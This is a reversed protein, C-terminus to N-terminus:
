LFEGGMCNRINLMLNKRFFIEYPTKLEATNVLCRNKLYAAACVVEPWFRNNVKAEALLCRSMDMISRNFREATGNLEHVYPPCANLIIGKERVFKYINNNMYEKGNDCRLKKVRKGTLNEVENIYGILCDYVQDKTKITYVRALKSYDDIFSLFYYREGNIGVTSHAGNLDTHVIELIEKAKSRNNQFPLNHMKNEICVKCKIIESEVNEPIGDVLQHKCIKNLYNFNVHGLIRHWKEKETMNEKSCLNINLERKDIVSTVKYLGDEKWAITILGRVKSFVKASNGKAVIDHKETVRSFSILNRDLDKIYFVNKMEVRELKDFVLFNSIVNGM